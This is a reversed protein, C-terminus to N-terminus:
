TMLCAQVYCGSMDSWSVEVAAEADEEEQASRRRRTERLLKQCQTELLTSHEGLSLKGVSVEQTELRKDKHQMGYSAIYCVPLAWVFPLLEVGSM